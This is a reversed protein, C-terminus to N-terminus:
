KQCGNRENYCQAAEGQCSHSCSRQCVRSSVDTSDMGRRKDVSMIARAGVPTIVVALELYHSKILKVQSIHLINM